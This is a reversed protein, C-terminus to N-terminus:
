CRRDLAILLAAGAGGQVFAQLLLVTSWNSKSYAESGGAPLAWGAQEFAAGPPPPPL